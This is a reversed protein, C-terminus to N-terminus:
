KFKVYAESRIKQYGAHASGGSYDVATEPLGDPWDAGPEGHCMLAATQLLQVPVSTHHCVLFVYTCACM